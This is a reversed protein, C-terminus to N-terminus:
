FEEFKVVARFNQDILNVPRGINYTEAEFIGDLPSITTMLETKERGPTGVLQFNYPRWNRSGRAIRTDYALEIELKEGPAVFMPVEFIKWTESKKVGIAGSPSDFNRLEADAPVWIRLVTRNQGYGLKWWLEDTLKERMAAPWSKEGLLESLEGHRLTHNRVIKLSNKVAGDAGIESDHRLKTWLFKESKNAGISVFDFMLFNDADKETRMSGDIKWREFVKEVGRDDSWALVNKQALFNEFDFTQAHPDNELFMEALQRMRIPDLLAAAVDLVPDKVNMRGALKAEILFQLVVDFNVSNITLNWDPLSVPGTLKLMEEAVNQNIAFITGPKKEGAAVFFRQIKEASTPFDPWFNGDRLSITKSLNHFFEPAPLQNRPDILRDLAYVDRFDWTFKGDKEFDIVILSGLFGGTSRPENQNQLLILIREENSAFKQLMKEARLAGVLKERAGHVIELIKDQESKQADDLLFDPITSLNRDIHALSKEIKKLSEFIEFAVIKQVQPSDPNIRIKTTTGLPFTSKLNEIETLINQVELLSNKVNSIPFINPLNETKEVIAAWNETSTGASKADAAIELIQKKVVPVQERVVVAGTGVAAILMGLLVVFTRM